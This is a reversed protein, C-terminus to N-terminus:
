KGDTSWHPPDSALKMVGFTAGVKHLDKNMGSTPSSTITVEEGKKTKIVLSKTWSITMDIAKGQIHRSTLSPQFAIDFGSKGAMDKAAAVSTKDDGHDWKITAGKIKPVDKPKTKGNAVKFSWHMLAARTANRRTASIKVKAGAAELASIFDAVKSKFSADLDGVSDSNPYKSQNSRFWELGSLDKDEAM